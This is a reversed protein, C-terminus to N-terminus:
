CVCACVRARMYARMFVCGDPCKELDSKQVNWNM